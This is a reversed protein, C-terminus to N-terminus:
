MERLVPSHAELELGVSEKMVRGQAEECMAAHVCVSVREVNM